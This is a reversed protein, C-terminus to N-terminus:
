EPGIPFEQLNHGRDEGGSREPTQGRRQYETKPSYTRATVWGSTESPLIRIAATRLSCGAKQRAGDKCSFSQRSQDQAGTRAAAPPGGSDEKAAHGM